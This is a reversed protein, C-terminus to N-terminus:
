NLEKKWASSPKFRIANKEGVEIAEGSRPNRATRPARVVNKFSGFKHIDVDNGMSIEFKIRDFIFDVLEEAMERNITAFSEKIDVALEKKTM